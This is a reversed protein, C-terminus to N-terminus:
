PFNQEIQAAIANISLAINSTNAPNAYNTHTKSLVAGHQTAHNTICALTKGRSKSACIIVDCNHPQFFVFNSQVIALTDGGSAIGVVYTKGNKQLPLVIALDGDQKHFIGRNELFRRISSTKGSNSPGTVLIIKHM